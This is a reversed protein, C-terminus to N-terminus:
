VRSGHQHKLWTQCRMSPNHHHHLDHLIHGLTHQDDPERSQFAPAMSGCSFLGRKRSDRAIFQSCPARSVAERAVRGLFPRPLVHRQSSFDSCMASWVAQKAHCWKKQCSKHTQKVRSTVMRTAVHRRWVTFYLNMLVVKMLFDLKM